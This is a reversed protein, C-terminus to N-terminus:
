SSRVLLPKLSVGEDEFVIENHHHREATCTEQHRKLSDSRSFDVNCHICFCDLHAKDLHRQFHGPHSTTYECKNCAYFSPSPARENLAKAESAVLHKKSKFHGFKLGKKFEAGCINCKSLGKMFMIDYKSMFEVNSFFGQVISPTDKNSNYLSIPMNIQQYYCNDNPNLEVKMGMCNKFKDHIFSDNRMAYSTYSQNYNNFLRQINRYETYSLQNLYDKVNKDFEKEEVKFPSTLYEFGMHRSVENLWGLRASRMKTIDKKIVNIHSTLNGARYLSNDCIEQILSPPPTRVYQGHEDLTFHFLTKLMKMHKYSDKSPMFDHVIDQTLHEPKVNTTRCIEYKHKKREDEVSSVGNDLLYQYSKKSLDDATMIEIEVQTEKEKKKDFIYDTMEDYEKQDVDDGKKYVRYGNNSLKQILTKEYNHYDLSKEIMNKCFLRSFENEMIKMKYGSRAFNVRTSSYRAIKNLNNEFYSIVHEDKQFHPMHCPKVKVSLHINRCARFRALLQSVTEATSSASIFLGYISVDEWRPDDRSIGESWTPSYIVFDYEDYLNVSSEFQDRTNKNIHISRYKKYLHNFQGDIYDISRNHAIIVKNGKRLDEEILLQIIVEDSHIFVNKPKPKGNRVVKFDPDNRIGNVFDVDETTMNADLMVLPIDRNEFIGFLQTTAYECDRMDTMKMVSRIEDIIILDYDSCDFKGLSNFCTTQWLAETTDLYSKFEPYKEIYDGDLSIRSHILLVKNFHKAYTLARTSKGNGTFSCDFLTTFKGFQDFSDVGRHSVQLPEEKPLTTDCIGERTGIQIPKGKGCFCHVYIKFDRSFWFMNESSHNDSKDTLCPRTVGDTRELRHDIMTLYPYDKLWDAVIDTDKKDLSQNSLSSQNYHHIVVEEKTFEDVQERDQIDNGTLVVLGGKRNSFSYMSPLFLRLHNDRDRKCCGPIRFLRNKSYVSTDVNWDAKYDNLKQYIFLVHSKQKNNNEFFTKKSIIHLSLKVSTHAEYVVIDKRNLVSKEYVENRADLLETIIEVSKADVDERTMNSIKCDIDYYEAVVDRERILENVCRDETELKSCWDLMETQSDCVMTIYKQKQYEYKFSYPKNIFDLENQFGYEFPCGINMVSMNNTNM